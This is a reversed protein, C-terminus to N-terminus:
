VKGDVLAITKGKLDKGGRPFVVCRLRLGIVVLKVEWLDVGVVISPICGDCKMDEEFTLHKKSMM